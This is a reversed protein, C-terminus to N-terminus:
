AAAQQGARLPLDIKFTTSGAHEDSDVRVRGGHAETLGKVIALGVGWGEAGAVTPGSARAFQVFLRDRDELPIPAGFNQVAIEAEHATRRLRLTIPRDQTGYKVANGCLNEIIRRIADPDWEGDVAGNTELVFRDGYMASLEDLTHRAIGDLSCPRVHLPPMEGARLRNRELLQQIMEDVRGLNQVVRTMLRDFTEQDDDRKRRLLLEAGLKAAQLPSRVDHSLRSVYQDRAQQEAQAALIQSRTLEREQMIRSRETLDAVVKSFGMLTGRTFMPTILVDALFLEGGKRVRWGEGRYRGRDLAMRLHEMAEDRQVADETYLISFHRGIIEHAEYRKMRAAGANWTTVVGAPDLSFIAYDNVGEILHRYLARDRTLEGTQTLDFRAASALVFSQLAFRLDDRTTRDLTEDRELEDLLVQELVQYERVVQEVTYEGRLARENGHKEAFSLDHLEGTTLESALQEVIAPISDRLAAPEERSAAPVSARVRSEWDSLIRDRARILREGVPGHGRM